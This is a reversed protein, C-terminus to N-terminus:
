INNVTTFWMACTAAHVQGQNKKKKSNNKVAIRVQCIAVSFTNYKAFMEIQKQLSFSLSVLSNPAHPFFLFGKLNTQLHVGTAM